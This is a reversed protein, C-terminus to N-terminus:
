QAGVAYDLVYYGTAEGSVPDTYPQRYVYPSFSYGYTAYEDEPTSPKDPLPPIEGSFDASSGITIGYSTGWGAGVSAGFSLGVASVSGSVSVSTHMAQTNTESSGVSLSFGVTSVDSARLTPRTKFVQEDAQVPTGDLKTPSKAYSDIDGIRTNTTIKQLGLHEALANYRSTSLVTSQGGVPLLMTFQKGTGGARNAPDTLEYVYSHVCTCSVVVAAYENGYLDTQPRLSFRTGVSNYKSLTQSQSVEASLKTSLKAKFIGAFDADVGVEVGANLSVTDTESQSEDTRNGVSVGAKGSDSLESRFPPFTVVMTPVLRGPILEPGSVLHASASDDDLDSLAIRKPAATTSVDGSFAKAITNNTWRLVDVTKNSGLVVVADGRDGGDIDGAALDVAAGTTDAALIGTFGAGIRYFHVRDSAFGFWGRDELLAVEAKGDHDIDGATVSKFRTNFAAAIYGGAVDPQWVSVNTTDGNRLLFIVEDKGDGNTDATAVDVGVIGTGSFSYGRCNGNQKCIRINGNAALAVIDDENDGDVDGGAIAVPVIGVDIDHKAITRGYMTVKTSSAKSAIMGNGTSAHIAAVDTLATTSMNYSGGGGTTYSVATAADYGDVWYSGQNATGDVIALEQERFFIKSAGLPVSSEYPGDECQRPRCIHEDADCTEGPSCQSSSTCSLNTDDWTPSGPGPPPDEGIDPPTFAGQDCAAVLVAVALLKIARM